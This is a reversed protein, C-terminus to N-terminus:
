EGRVAALKAAKAAVEEQMKVRYAALKEVL